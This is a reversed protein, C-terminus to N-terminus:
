RLDSSHSAKRMRWLEWNQISHRPLFLAVAATLWWRGTNIARRGRYLWRLGQFRSGKAVAQRALTIDHQALWVLTSERLSPKMAGSTARFRMRQTFPAATLICHQTTLSNEAEARYAMLPAHVLAIPTCEALRFWLDLDEGQSEGPPFCPQMQWLRSTRVSVASTCLSPGKMWRAPLDTILEVQPPSAYDPWRPPWMDPSDPVSLFATAVTDAEPHAAQAALLGLLYNPHHWDDADLFVVWEGRALAIGHNRAASVGANSQRVLRVRPDAMACVLDPGADTSGDDVVIVEFDTFTQALASGLTGTIYAAKNYLPIIVTFKM